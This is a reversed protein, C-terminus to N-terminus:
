VGVAPGGFGKAGEGLSGDLLHRDTVCLLVRRLLYLNQVALPWTEGSTGTMTRSSSRLAVGRSAINWMSIFLFPQNSPGKEGTLRKKM